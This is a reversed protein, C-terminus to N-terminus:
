GQFIRMDKIPFTGRIKHLTGIYVDISIRDDIVISEGLFIYYIIVYLMCVYM